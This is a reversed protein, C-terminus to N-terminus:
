SALNGVTHAFGLVGGTIYGPRALPLVVRWFTKFKSAGLSHAAEVPDNGIAKFANRLPQVVFPLSYFVSGIM